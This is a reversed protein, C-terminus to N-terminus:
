AHHTLCLAAPALHSMKGCSLTAPKLTHYSFCTWSIRAALSGGCRPGPSLRSQPLPVSMDRTVSVTHGQSILRESNLKRMELILNYYMCLLNNYSLLTSLVWHLAQCVTITPYTIAVVTRFDIVVCLFHEVVRGRLGEVGGGVRGDGGDGM